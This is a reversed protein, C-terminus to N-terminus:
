AYKKYNGYGYYGYDHMKKHQADNFIFGQIKSGVQNFRKIAVELERVTHRGARVVLFHTGALRGMILVDGVITPPTDIIVIDFQKSVTDLIEKFRENALVNSPNTPLKGTPIFSVGSTETETDSITYIVETLELEGRIVESLGPSRTQGFYNHLIGKRLDCDIVLVRKGMNGLLYSVNGSVFSKGASAITSSIAIINNDAEMLTFQISTGLSRLSEVAPEDFYREALLKSDGLKTKKGVKLRTQKRSHPIIAYVPLGLQREIIDPDDILTHLGKRVFAFLVGMFLGVSLGLVVFLAKKPKTPINPVVAPDVIRMNSIIGAKVMKVEQAKNLVLLYLENAVKLDRMVRLTDLTAKPLTKLRKGILDRESNLKNVMTELAQMKEHSPTYRSKFDIRMIEWTSMQKDIEALKALLTKNELELDISGYKLRHKNLAMETKELNKKLTPLQSNLFVLTKEAEKSKREIDQRVYFDAITNVIETIKVPDSGELTIQLIGTGIGGTERIKLVQRLEYASTLHSSKIVTFETGKRAHLESVFITVSNSTAEKGVVGELLLKGEPTYFQYHGNEGAVLKFEKDEYKAPVTLQEVRIHEGGWAFQSMGWLPEALPQSSYVEHIRSLIPGVVPLYHPTAVIDLKLQKIVKGIVNRSKIVEIETVAQTTEAAFMSSIDDLASIASKKEELQLLADTSYIPVALFAYSTFIALVLITIIAIQWKRESIPNLYDRLDVQYEVHQSQPSYIPDPKNTYNHM